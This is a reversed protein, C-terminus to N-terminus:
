EGGEYIFVAMARKGAKELGQLDTVRRGNPTFMAWPQATNPTSDGRPIRGLRSELSLELVDELNFHLATFSPESYLKM